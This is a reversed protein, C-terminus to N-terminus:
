HKGESVQGYASAPTPSDPDDDDDPDVGDEDDDDDDDNIAIVKTNNISPLACSILYLLRLGKATLRSGGALVFM